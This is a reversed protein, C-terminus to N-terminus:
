TLVLKENGDHSAQRWPEVQDPYLCRERCYASLETPNFGATELLVTFKDTAGWGEPDKVSAPM